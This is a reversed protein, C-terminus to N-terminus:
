EPPRVAATVFGAYDGGYPFQAVSINDKGYNNVIIINFTKVRINGTGPM